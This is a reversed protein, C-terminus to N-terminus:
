SKTPQTCGRLKFWGRIGGRARGIVEQLEGITVTRCRPDFDMAVRLASWCHRPLEGPSGWRAASRNRLHGDCARRGQALEYLVCAVAYLDANASLPAGDLLEPAVYSPTWANFRSRSLGPLGAAVQKVTQGLGFDFLRLGQDGVMVNGPKVDGHLVGQQHTYSLAELLGVAIPQLEHWPLGGPCEHLLRDLTVGTMLEMTYFAMECATDVEFSYARIVREHLLRRTLSFERYLLVHADTAQSFVEGLVKLAVSSEPEGFQEHLLDRARYVVGMGGAGLVREIRYRGALLSPM